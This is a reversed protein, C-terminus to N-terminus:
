GAAGIQSEDLDLLKQRLKGEDNIARHEADWTNRAAVLEYWYDLEVRDYEWPRLPSLDFM